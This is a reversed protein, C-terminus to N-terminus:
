VSFIVDLEPSGGAGVIIAGSDRRTRDFTTGCAAGDLNVGGNGAAEVVVIRNAVAYQIANFVSEDAEVPGYGLNSNPNCPDPQANCVLWQQEILIM